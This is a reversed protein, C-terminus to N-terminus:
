MVHNGDFLSEDAADTDIAPQEDKMNKELYIRARELIRSVQGAKSEEIGVLLAIDKGSPRIHMLGESLDDRWQTTLTDIGELLEARKSEDIVMPLTAEARRIRYFKVVANALKKVKEKSKRELDGMIDVMMSRIEDPPMKNFGSLEEIEEDSLPDAAVISLRLVWYAKRNEMGHMLGLVEMLMDHMFRERDLVDRDASEDKTDEQLTKDGEEGMPADLFGMLEEEIVQPLNRLVRRSRLYNIAENVAMRWLWGNIYDLNRCDNLKHEDLLKEVIKLHILSVVDVDDALAKKGAALLTKKIAAKLLPLFRRFFEEWADRDGMLCRAVLERITLDRYSM